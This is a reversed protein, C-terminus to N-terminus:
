DPLKLTKPLDIIFTTGKDLNSEITLTAGIDELSSKVVDMGIGRGSIESENEKTSISPLFIINFKEEESLKQVFVCIEPKYSASQM